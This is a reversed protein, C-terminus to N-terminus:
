TWALRVTFKEALTAALRRLAAHAGGLYFCPTYGPDLLRTRRQEPDIVWLAMGAPTPYLDLLWGRMWSGNSSLAKMEAKWPEQTRPWGSLM